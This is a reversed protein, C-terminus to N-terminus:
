GDGARLLPRAAGAGASSSGTSACAPSSHGGLGARLRAAPEFYEGDGSSSESAPRADPEATSAQGRLGASSPRAAWDAAEAWLSAGDEFLFACHGALGRRVGTGSVGVSVSSPTLWVIVGTSATRPGDYSSASTVSLFSSNGRFLLGFSAPSAPGRWTRLLEVALVPDLVSASPLRRLTPKTSTGSPCCGSCLFPLPASSPAALRATSRMLSGLPSSVGVAALIFIWLSSSSIWMSLAPLSGCLHTSSWSSVCRAVAMKLATSWSHWCSPLTDFSSSRLTSRLSVSPAFTSKWSSSASSEPSISRLSHSLQNPWRCRRSAASFMSSHSSCSSATTCSAFSTLKAHSLSLKRSLFVSVLARSTKSRMRLAVSDVSVDTGFAFISSTSLSTSVCYVFSSRLVPLRCTFAACKTSHSSSMCRRPVFGTSTSVHVSCRRSRKSSRWVSVDGARWRRLARSVSAATFRVCVADSAVVGMCSVGATIAPLPRPRPSFVVSSVVFESSFWVVGASSRVGSASMVGTSSTSPSDAGPSPPYAPGSVSSRFCLAIAHKWAISAMPAFVASRGCLSTTRASCIAGTSALIMSFPSSLGVPSSMVIASQIWHSSSMSALSLFAASMIAKISVLIASMGTNVYVFLWLGVSVVGLASVGGGGGM